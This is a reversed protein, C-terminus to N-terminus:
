FYPTGHIKVAGHGCANMITTAVEVGRQCAHKVAGSDGKFAIPFENAFVVEEPKYQKICEIDACKLIADCVVFGMAKPLFDAAGWAKGEEGGFYPHTLIPGASAVYEIDYLANDNYAVGGYAWTRMNQITLEVWRRADSVDESGVIWTSGHAGQATPDNAASLDLLKVSVMKAAQDGAIAPPLGGFRTSVIGISRLEKPFNMAAQLQEDVRAVVMGLTNGYYQDFDIFETMGGCTPDIMDSVANVAENVESVTPNAVAEPSSIVESVIKNIIDAKNM